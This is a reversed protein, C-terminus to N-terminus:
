RISVIIEIASAGCGVGTVRSIPQCRLAWKARCSAQSLRIATSMSPTTPSHCPSATPDTANVPHASPPPASASPLAITTHRKLPARMSDCM